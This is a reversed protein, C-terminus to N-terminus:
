KLYFIIGIILIVVLSILFFGGVGFDISELKKKDAM